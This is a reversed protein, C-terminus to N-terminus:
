VGSVMTSLGTEDGFPANVSNKSELTGGIDIFIIYSSLFIDIIVFILFSVIKQSLGGASMLGEANM